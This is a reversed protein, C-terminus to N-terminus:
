EPGEGILGFSSQVQGFVSGGPSAGPQWRRLNSPGKSSSSSPIPIALSTTLTFPSSGAVGLNNDSTQQCSSVGPVYGNGLILKIFWLLMCVSLIFSCSLFFSLFFQISSFKPWSWTNHFFSLIISVYSIVNVIIGKRYSDPGVNMQTKLILFHSFLGRCFSPM